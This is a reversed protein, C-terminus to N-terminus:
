PRGAKWVPEIGYFQAIMDRLIDPPCEAIETSVCMANLVSVMTAPNYGVAGHLVVADHTIKCMQETTFAKNMFSLKASEEYRGEDWLRAATYISAKCIDIVIGMDVLRHAVKQLQNLPRGSNTRESTYKLALNMATRGITLTMLAGNNFGLATWLNVSTDSGRLVNEKPVRVGDLFISGWDDTGPILRQEQGGNIVGPWDKEIVFACSQTNGGAEKGFIVKVDATEANTVVVKQGSVIVADGDDTYNLGWETMNFSGAPDTAGGCCVKEGKACPTLYKQKIEETGWYYLVACGLEHGALAELAPYGFDGLVESVILESVVTQGQGGYEEPISMGIFGNEALLDWCQRPFGGKARDAEIAAQAQPSQCFDAVAQKLLEQEDTMFYSM